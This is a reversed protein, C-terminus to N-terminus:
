HEAADTRDTRAQEKQGKDRHGARKAAHGNGAQEKGVAAKGVAKGYARAETIIRKRADEDGFVAARFKASHGQEGVDRAFQQRQEACRQEGTPEAVKRWDGGSPSCRHIGRQGDDRARRAISVNNQRDEVAEHDVEAHRKEDSEKATQLRKIEM